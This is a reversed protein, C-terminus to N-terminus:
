RGNIRLGHALAPLVASKRLECNSLSVVRLRAAAAALLAEDFCPLRLALDVASCQQASLASTLQALETADVPAAPEDGEHSLGLWSVDLLLRAAAACAGVSPLQVELKELCLECAALAQLGEVTAQTCASVHASMNVSMNMSLNLTM